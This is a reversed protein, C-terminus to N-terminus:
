EVREKFRDIRMNINELWVNLLNLAGIFSTLCLVAYAIFGSLILILLTFFSLGM